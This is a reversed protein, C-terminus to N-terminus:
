NNFFIYANLSTAILLWILYPVILLAKYSLINWYKFFLYGILILLMTIDILGLSIEQFYFFLPNWLANLIWQIGFLVIVKKLSASKVLFAMYVAFCIMILTWAAGFVWGPPTWPAKQLNQYWVSSVGASTFLGGIYLGTFNLILFLLIRKIM